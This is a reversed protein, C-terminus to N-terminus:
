VCCAASLVSPDTECLNDVKKVSVTPSSLVVSTNSSPCHPDGKCTCLRKNDTREEECVCVCVCVCVCSVVIMEPPIM